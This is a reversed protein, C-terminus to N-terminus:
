VLQIKELESIIQAVVCSECNYWPTNGCMDCSHEFNKKAESITVSNKQMAITFM